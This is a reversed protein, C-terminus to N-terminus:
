RTPAVLPRRWGQVCDHCCLHLFLPAQAHLREKNSCATAAAPLPPLRRRRVQRRPPWWSCCSLSACTAAVIPNRSDQLYLPHDTPPPLALTRAPESACCLSRRAALKATPETNMTVHCTDLCLRSLCAGRKRAGSPPRSDRHLCSGALLSHPRVLHRYLVSYCAVVRRRLAEAALNGARWATHAPGGSEPTCSRGDRGCCPSTVILQVALRFQYSRIFHLSAVIGETSHPPAASCPPAVQGPRNANLLVM